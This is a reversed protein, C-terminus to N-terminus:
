DDDTCGGDILSDPAPVGTGTVKVTDGGFNRTVTLAADCWPGIYTYVGRQVVEVCRPLGLNAYLKAVDDRLRVASELDDKVIAMRGDTTIRYGFAGDGTIYGHGPVNVAYQADIRDPERAPLDLTGVEKTINDM